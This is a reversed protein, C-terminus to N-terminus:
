IKVMVSDQSHNNMTKRLGMIAEESIRMFEYEHEDYLQENPTASNM